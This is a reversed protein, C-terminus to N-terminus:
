SRVEKLMKAAQRIALIIRLYTGCRCINGEMFHAIQQETPDPNTELLAAATLIMGSTCYGCQLADADLFARQLPHLGGNPSLGEITVIHKDGVVGVQTICSRRPLGDILVTCAGCQGEGCGYKAGTLDLHHRLVSLLSTEADVDVRYTTGNVQLQTVRTM